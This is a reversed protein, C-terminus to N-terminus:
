LRQATIAQASIHATVAQTIFLRHATVAQTIGTNLSQIGEEYVACCREERRSIDSARGQASQLEPAGAAELERRAM